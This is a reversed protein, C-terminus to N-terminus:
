LARQPTQMATLEEVSSSARVSGRKLMGFGAEIASLGTAFTATELKAMMKSPMKFLRPLIKRDMVGGGAKFGMLHCTFHFHTHGEFSM